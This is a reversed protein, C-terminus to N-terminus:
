KFLENLKCEVGVGFEEAIYEAYNLQEQFESTSAWTNVFEQITMDPQYYSSQGDFILQLQYKLAKWGTEKDKFYAFGNVIGEMFPSWIMAGPNNLRNPLTGSIGFGEFEAMCIALRDVVSQKPIDRKGKLYSIIATLIQIMQLLLSAQREEPLPQLILNLHPKIYTDFINDTLNQLEGSIFALAEAESSNPHRKVFENVTFDLIDPINKKYTLNLLAFLAHITEHVLMRWGWQTSLTALKPTLPVLIGIGGNCKFSNMTCYYGESNEKEPYYCYIVIHYEGISWWAKKSLEQMYTPSLTYHTGFKQWQLDEDWEEFDFQYPINHRTLWQGYLNIEDNFEKFYEKTSKHKLFLIKM